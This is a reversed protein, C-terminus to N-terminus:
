APKVEPLEPLPPFKEALVPTCQEMFKRIAPEYRRKFQFNRIAQVIWKVIGIYIPSIVAVVIVARVISASWNGPMERAHDAALYGKLAYVLAGVTVLTLGWIWRGPFRHAANWGAKLREFDGTTHNYVLLIDTGCMVSSIINGRNAIFANDSFKQWTKRGDPTNLWYRHYTTSTVHTSTTSAEVYTTNGVSYTRGPTTTTSVSTETWVNKEFIQGCEFVLPYVKRFVQVRRLDDPFRLPGAVADPIKPERPRGRWPWALFLWPVALVVLFVFKGAVQIKHTLVQSQKVRDKERLEAAVRPAIAPAYKLIVQYQFEPQDSIAWYIKEFAFHNPGAPPDIDDLAAQYKATIAMNHGHAYGNHNLYDMLVVLVAARNTMNDFDAVVREAPPFEVTQAQSLLPLLIVFALFIRRCLRPFVKM